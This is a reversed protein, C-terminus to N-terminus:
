RSGFADSRADPHCLAVYGCHIAKCREVAVRDFVGRAQAVRLRSLTAEIRGELSAPDSREIWVPEASAGRLFVLGARVRPAAPRSREIVLAYLELQMAYLSSDSSRSTKYDVIDVSGDPWSVILDMTGRLLWTPESSTGLRHLFSWEREITAGRSRADSAYASELFGLALEAAPGLSDGGGGGSAPNATALWTRATSADGWTDIPATELLTHVETGIDRASITSAREAVARARTRAAGPRPEPLGLIEVLEYRRPCHAFSLLPTAGISVSELRTRDALSEISDPERDAKTPVVASVAGESGAHVAEDWLDTRVSFASADESTEMISLADALCTVASEGGSAKSSSSRMRDGVFVLLDKARTALVYDIRKREARDRAARDREALRFSRPKLAEGSSNAIRAYVEPRGESEGVFFADNSGTNATQTAVDPVLVIRFALGKSAHVTLLQVADDTARADVAETEGLGERRAREADRVFSLPGVAADAMRMLKEVNAVRQAGRPLRRLIELLHTERVAVRLLEGPRMAHARGKLSEVLAVLQEARDIDDLSASARRACDLLGPGLEPLQGDALAVRALFDDSLGCAAGRMTELRALDDDPRLIVRMLAIADRVELAEFFARGSATYPIARKALEYAVLSLTTHRYGLVAFDNWALTGRLGFAGPDHVLRFIASAVACAEDHAQTRRGSGKEIQEPKLWLVGPGGPDERGSGDAPACLDEVDPAYDLDFLPDEPDRFRVRCMANAFARIRACSRRNEVLAHLRAPENPEDRFVALTEDLGLRARGDQGVLQGAFANFAAVDAGRFGYISQKRDGVVFLGRTRLDRATPMTGPARRTPDSEWLLLVLDRQLRSTDQFEDVLLADMEGGAAAAVDPHHLLLDRACALVDSHSLTAQAHRERRVRRDTELLIARALLSAREIRDLRRVPGVFQSLREAKSGSSPAWDEVIREFLQDVAQYNASEKEAKKGVRKSGVLAVLAQWFADSDSDVLTPLAVQALERRAGVAPDRALQPVLERYAGLIREAAGRDGSPLGLREKVDGSEALTSLARGVAQALLRPSEGRCLDALAQEDDGGVEEIVDLAIREVQAVEASPELIEFTPPVGLRVGYARVLRGAVSHLTGVPSARVRDLVRAACQRVVDDRAERDASPAITRAISAGYDAETGLQALAELAEALRTRLEAAAKNSFTTAVIRSPDVPSGSKRGHTATAGFLLHTMVGILSYTKGTGASAVVVLNKEFGYPADPENSRAPESM